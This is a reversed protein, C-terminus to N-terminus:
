KKQELLLREKEAIMYQELAMMVIVSEPMGKRNSAEKLFDVQEKPLRFGKRVMDAM